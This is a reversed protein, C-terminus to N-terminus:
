ERGRQCLPGRPIKIQRERGGEDNRVQHPIWVEGQMLINSTM